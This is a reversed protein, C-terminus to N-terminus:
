IILAIEFVIFYMYSSSKQASTVHVSILSFYKIISGSKGMLTPAVSYSQYSRFQMVQRYGNPWLAVRGRVGMVNKISGLTVHYCCCLDKAPNDNVAM